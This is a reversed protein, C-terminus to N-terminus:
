VDGQGALFAEVLEKSVLIVDNFTAKAAVLELFKRQRSDLVLPDEQALREELCAELFDRSLPITEGELKGASAGEHVLM